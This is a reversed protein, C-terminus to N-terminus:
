KKILRPNLMFVDLFYKSGLYGERRSRAVASLFSASSPGPRFLDFNNLHSKKAFFHCGTVRSPYFLAVIHLKKLHQSEDSRSYDYSRCNPPPRYLANDMSFVDHVAKAVVDCRQSTSSPQDSLCCALALQLKLVVTIFVSMMSQM